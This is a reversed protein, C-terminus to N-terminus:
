AKDGQKLDTAAPRRDGQVNPSEITLADEREITETDPTGLSGVDAM